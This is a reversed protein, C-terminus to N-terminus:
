GANTFQLAGFAITVKETLPRADASGGQTVSTVFVQRLEYQHTPSNGVGTANVLLKATTFHGGTVLTRLIEPSLADLAKTFSLEQLEAKGAGAGGGASGTTAPATAGWSYSLVEIPQDAPTLGQIELTGLATGAGPSAPPAGVAGAPRLLGFAAAAVGIVAIAAAAYLSRRRM